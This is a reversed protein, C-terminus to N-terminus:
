AEEALAAWAERMTNTWPEEDKELPPGNQLDALDQLIGRLRQERARAADLIAKVRSLPMGPGACGPDKIPWMLWPHQECVWPENPTLDM